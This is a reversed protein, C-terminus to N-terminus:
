LNIRTLRELEAEVLASAIATRRERNHKYKTRIRNARVEVWDTEDVGPEGAFEEEEPAGEEMPHDDAEIDELIFRALRLLEGKTHQDDHEPTFGKEIQNQREAEIMRRAYM